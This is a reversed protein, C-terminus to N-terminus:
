DYKAKQFWFDHLMVGITLRHYSERILGDDLTGRFGFEYNLNFTTYTYLKQPNRWPLGVGLSLGYDLIQHDNLLVYSKTYHGGIRYHIREYFEARSRDSMPVPVFEAGFRLSSYDALPTEDLGLGPKESFNQLTYEGTLTLQNNFNYSLGFGLKQPMQLNTMSDAIINFTDMLPNNVRSPFNRSTMAGYDLSIDQEMDYVAGLVFQHTRSKKDTFTPHLQLGFKFYFDSATYKETVTTSAVTQDPVDVSSVRTINGFLYGANAGVSLFKTLQIGSGFYFENFGGTGTYQVALEELGSGDYYELFHYQTRSFPALGLNFKWWKTIPFGMSFYELNANYMTQREELTKIFSLRGTLGAAFLFTMTDQSTCSAPNLYNIQNTPRIGIGSGGLSQNYGFGNNMLDGIALRTYPNNIYNQGSVAIPLALLLLFAVKNIKQM